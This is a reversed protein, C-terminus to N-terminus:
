LKETVFIELFKLRGAGAAAPFPADAHGIFFAAVAAVAPLVAAAGRAFHARGARFAPLKGNEIDRRLTAYAVHSLAAAQKLTIYKGEEKAGAM